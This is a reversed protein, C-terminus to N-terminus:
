KSTPYLPQDSWAALVSPWSLTAPWGNLIPLGERRRAFVYGVSVFSIVAYLGGILEDIAYHEGEYVTGFYIAIPYILSVFGWKKGFLTFMFLSFLTAFGAHLSPVAAVPNPAIRNYVSPFDHIGLAFWVQSSIRTIPQILHQQAAMWPPAAPFLLFTIFGSFCLVLYTTVVQWYYEARKRWILLALGIPIIFHLMYVMYLAMEFWRVQGRWLWHQLQATPLGGFLATDAHPMWTYNVRHNFRPVLGRFSEYLLMIGVFPLLHVVLSKASKFFM